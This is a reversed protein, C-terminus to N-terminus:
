HAAWEMALKAREGELYSRFAPNLRAEARALHLEFWSRATAVQGTELLAWTRQLLQATWDMGLLGQHELQDVMISAATSRPEFWKAYRASVDVASDGQLEILRDRAPPEARQSPWGEAHPDSVLVLPRPAGPLRVLQKPISGATRDLWRHVKGGSLGLV